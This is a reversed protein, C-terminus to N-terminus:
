KESQHAKKWPKLLIYIFSSYLILNITIYIVSNILSKNIIYIGDDIDQNIQIGQLWGNIDFNEFSVRKFNNSVVINNPNYPTTLMIKDGTNFSNPIFTSFWKSEISIAETLKQPSSYKYTNGVRLNTLNNETIQILKLDSLTIDPSSNTTGIKQYAVISVVIPTNLDNDFVSRYNTESNNDFTERISTIPIVKYNITNIISIDIDIDKSQSLNFEIYNTGNIYELPIQFAISASDERTPEFVYSNTTSHTNNSTIDLDKTYNRIGNMFYSINNEERFIRTINEIPPIDEVSIQHINSIKNPISTILTKYELTINSPDIISSLYQDAVNCNDTFLYDGAKEYYKFDSHSIEFEGTYRPQITENLCVLNTKPILFAKQKTDKKHPLIHALYFEPQDNPYTYKILDFKIGQKTLQELDQQYKTILINDEESNFYSQNIANTSSVSVIRNMIYPSMFFEYSSNYVWFDDHFYIRLDKLDTNETIYNTIDEYNYEFKNTEHIQYQNSYLYNLNFWINFSCLLTIITILIGTKLTNGKSKIFQDEFFITLILPLFMLAPMTKAMSPNDFNPFFPLILYSLLLTLTLAYKLDKKTFAKYILWPILFYILATIPGFPGLNTIWWQNYQPNRLDYWKTMSLPQEGDIYASGTVLNAPHMYAGVREIGQIFFVKYDGEILLSIASFSSREQLSNDTSLYGQIFPFLVVGGVLLIGVISIVSKLLSQKLDKLVKKILEKKSTFIILLIFTFIPIFFLSMGHTYTAIAASFLATYLYLLRYKDTLFFKLLSLIYTSTFFLYAAILPIYHSHLIFYGSPLFILFFIIISTKKLKLTKLIEFWTISSLIMFVVSPLRSSIIMATTDFNTRFYDVLSYSWYGGLIYYAFFQRISIDETLGKSFMEPTLVARLQDYQIGPPIQVIKYIAFFVTLVLILIFLPIYSTKKM